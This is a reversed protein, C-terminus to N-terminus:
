LEISCRYEGGHEEDHRNNGSRLPHTESPKKDRGHSTLTSLVHGQINRAHAYTIHTCRTPAFSYRHFLQTRTTKWCKVWYNRISSGNAISIILSM